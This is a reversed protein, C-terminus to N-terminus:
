GTHQVNVFRRGLYTENVDFIAARPPGPARLVEDVSLALAMAGSRPYRRTLVDRWFQGPEKVDESRGGPGLGRGPATVPASHVARAFQAAARSNGKRARLSIRPPAAGNGTRHGEPRENARAKKPPRQLSHLREGEPDMARKRARPAAGPLGNGNGNDAPAHAEARQGGASATGAPRPSARGTRANERAPPHDLAEPAPPFLSYIRKLNICEQEGDLTYPGLPM